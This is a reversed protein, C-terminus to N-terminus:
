GGAKRKPGSEVKRKKPSQFVRTEINLVGFTSIVDLVSHSVAKILSTTAIAPASHISRVTSPRMSINFDSEDIFVCNKLFFLGM